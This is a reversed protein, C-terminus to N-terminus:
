FLALIMKIKGSILEEYLSISNDFMKVLSLVKIDILDQDILRLIRKTKRADM